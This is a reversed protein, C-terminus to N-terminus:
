CFYQKQYSELVAIKNKSNTQFGKKTFPSSKTWGRKQEARAKSLEKSIFSMKGNKTKYDRLLEQYEAKWQNQSLAKITMM